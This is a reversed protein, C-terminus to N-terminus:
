CQKKHKTCGDPLAIIPRYRLPTTGAKRPKGIARDATGIKKFPMSGVYWRNVFKLGRVGYKFSASRTPSVKRTQKCLAIITKVVDIINHLATITNRPLTCEIAFIM